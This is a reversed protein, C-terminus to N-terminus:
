PTPTSAVVIEQIFQPAFLEQLAKQVDAGPQLQNEAEFIPIIQELVATQDPGPVPSITLV